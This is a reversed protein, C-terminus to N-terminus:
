MSLERFRAKTLPPHWFIMATEIIFQAQAKSSSIEWDVFPYAGFLGYSCKCVNNVHFQM